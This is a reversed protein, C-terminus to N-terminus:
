QGEKGTYFVNLLDCLAGLDKAGMIERCSHMSLQAIGLDVTPMGTRNAHIPGVTTGCPIDGRSVYKQFPIKHKRCLDVIAASSRADSAYRNQASSKIIIGKNLLAIHQPEHKDRYGPHLAHGLDVSACLSKHFWQFYAERPIDLAM